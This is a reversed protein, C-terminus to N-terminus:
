LRTFVSNRNNLSSPALNLHYTMPTIIGITWQQIIKYELCGPSHLAIEFNFSFTKSIFWICEGVLRQEHFTKPAMLQDTLCPDQCLQDKIKKLLKYILWKETLALNSPKRMSIYADHISRACIPSIIIDFSRTTVLPM